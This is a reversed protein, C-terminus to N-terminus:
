DENSHAGYKDQLKVYFEELQKKFKKAQENHMRAFNEQTQIDKKLRLVEELESIKLVSIPLSDKTHVVALEDPKFDLTKSYTTSIPLIITVSNKDQNICKVTGVSGTFEGTLIEVKGGIEFKDIALIEKAEEVMEEVSPIPLRDDDIPRLYSFSFIEPAGYSDLFVNASLDDFYIQEVTGVENKFIGEVTVVVRSGVSLQFDSM